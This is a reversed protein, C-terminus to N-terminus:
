EFHLLLAVSASTTGSLVGNVYLIQIPDLAVNMPTFGNQSSIQSGSTTLNCALTASWLLNRTNNTTSQFVPLLSLEIAATELDADLDAWISWSIGRLRGKRPVQVQAANNATGTLAAYVGIMEM